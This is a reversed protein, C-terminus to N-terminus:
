KKRFSRLKSMQENYARNYADGFINEYAEEVLRDYSESYADWCKAKRQFVIGDEYQKALHKPDFRELLERLAAMIGATMALQHNMIDACGEHIADVADIFGPHDKKLLIELADNVSASFKLPNNDVARITTVDVRTQVKQEARGRLVKMLGDIVERFVTGVTHMLEPIQESEIFRKDKLGAADLFIEFLEAETQRRNESGTELAAADPDKITPETPQRDVAPASSEGNTIGSTEAGPPGEFIDGPVSETNNVSPPPIDPFEPPQPFKETDHPSDFFEDIGFDESIPPSEESPTAIQPPNMSQHIPSPNMIRGTFEPRSSRKKDEMFPDSIPHDNPSNGQGFEFLLPDSEDDESEVINILIDFEGIQLRDGDTLQVTKGHVRLNKNTIFTGASSTDEIFYFGNEYYIRAHIRSVYKSPDPLIFDNRSSRGLTGGAQDFSASLLDRPPQGKYSIVKAALLM